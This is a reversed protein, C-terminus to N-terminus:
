FTFNKNKRESKELAQSYLKETEKLKNNIEKFMKKVEDSSYEYNNKNSCRGLNDLKDLVMQVRKSAIRKFNESKSIAGM